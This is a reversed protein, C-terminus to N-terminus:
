QKGEEFQQRLGNEWKAKFDAKVQEQWIQHDLKEEVTQVPHAIAEQWSKKHNPNGNLMALSWARNEGHKAIAIRKLDALSLPNPM